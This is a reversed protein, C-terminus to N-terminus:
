YFGSEEASDIEMESFKIYPNMSDPHAHGTKNIAKTRPVDNRMLQTIYSARMDHAMLDPVKNGEITGLDPIQERTRKEPDDPDVEEVEICERVWDERLDAPIDSEAAIEQIWSVLTTKSIGDGDIMDHGHQLDDDARPGDLAFYSECADQLGFYEEEGTMPNTWTNHLLLRRGEGAPTKVGFKTTNSQNCGGCPETNGYKYCPEEKPIHYYLVDGEGMAPDGYRFRGKHTHTITSSRAGLGVALHASISKDSDDFDHIGQVFAAHRSKYLPVVDRRM